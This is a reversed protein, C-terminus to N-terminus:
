ANTYQNQLVSVEDQLREREMELMQFCTSIERNNKEFEETINDLSEKAKQELEISLLKAKLERIVTDQDDIIEQVNILDEEDPPNQQTAINNTELQLQYAAELQELEDRLREKDGELNNMKDELTQQQADHKNFLSTLKETNAADFELSFINKKLNKNATLIENYNNQLGLYLAKYSSLNRVKKELQTIRKKDGESDNDLSDGIPTPDQDDDGIDLINEKGPNADFEFSNEDEISPTPPALISNITQEDPLKQIIGALQWRKLVCSIRKNLKKWFKINPKNREVFDHELELWNLRAVMSQRHKKAKEDGEEAANNLSTAYSKTAKIINKFYKKLFLDPNQKLDFFPKYKRVRWYLFGALLALIATSELIVLFVYFNLEIM